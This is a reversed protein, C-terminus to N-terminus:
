SFETVSYVPHNVRAPAGDGGDTHVCVAEPRGHNFIALVMDGGKRLPRAVELDRDQGDFRCSLRFIRSRAPCGAAILSRGRLKGYAEEARGGDSEFGAVFFSTVHAAREDGSLSPAGEPTMTLTGDKVEGQIRELKV